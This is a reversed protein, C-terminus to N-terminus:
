LDRPCNLAKAPVTTYWKAFPWPLLAVIVVAATPSSGGADRAAASSQLPFFVLYFFGGLFRDHLPPPFRPPRRLLRVCSDSIRSILSPSMLARSQPKWGPPRAPLHCCSAGGRKNVGRLPPPPKLPRVHRNRLRQGPPTRSSGDGRFTILQSKPGVQSAPPSCNCWLLQISIDSLTQVATWQILKHYKLFFFFFGNISSSLAKEMESLQM